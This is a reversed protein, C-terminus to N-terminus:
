TLDELEDLLTGLDWERIEYMGDPSTARWRGGTVVNPPIVTWDPCRARFARLRPVQDDHDDIARMM